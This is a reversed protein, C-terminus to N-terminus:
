PPEEIRNSYNRNSYNLNSYNSAPQLQIDFPHRFPAHRSDRSAAVPRTACFRMRKDPTNSAERGFERPITQNVTTRLKGIGETRMDARALMRLSAVSVRIIM